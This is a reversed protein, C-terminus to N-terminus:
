SGPAKNPFPSAPPQAFPGQQTATGKAHERKDDMDKTKNRISTAHLAAALITINRGIRDASSLFTCHSQMESLESSNARRPFTLFAMCDPGCIREADMFCMMQELGTKDVEEPLEETDEPLEETDDTM